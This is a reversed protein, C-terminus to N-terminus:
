SSSSSRMAPQSRGAPLSITWMKTCRWKAYGNWVSPSVSQIPRWKKVPPM